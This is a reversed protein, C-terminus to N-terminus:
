RSQRPSRSSDPWHALSYEDTGEYGRRLAISAAISPVDQDDWYADRVITTATAAIAVFAVVTIAWSLHWNRIRFIAVALFFAFVVALVELWRWPFQIFRLEPLTNWLWLSPRLMVFVSAAAVSILAWWLTRFDRRKRVVFIGAIVTVAIM